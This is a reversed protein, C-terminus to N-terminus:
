ENSKECKRQAIEVAHRSAFAERVDKEFSEKDWKNRTDVDSRLVIVSTSYQSEKFKTPRLHQSGEIYGHERAQLVIHSECNPSNVLQRFSKSASTHLLSSIVHSNDNSDVGDVKDDRKHKESKKAKKKSHYSASSATAHDRCTPVVIIFTVDLKRSTAMELLEEIRQAMNNMIGSSFPPNLEYWGSKLFAANSSPHFFDGSSGFHGDLDPSPFASFYQHLSCNFPSAFCGTGANKGFWRGLCDFVGEHIAGQMGGGRWDNLQQGGSLSSYLIVTAFLATHFAHTSQIETLSGSKYTTDFLTKLKHYHTVNLKVVFPKPKHKDETGAENDANAGDNSTSAHAKRKKAVYVLSCVQDDDHWEVLVKDVNGNGGSGSGGKRRKKKGGGSESSAAADWGFRQHKGLRNELHHLETHAESTTSCLERVIELAKHRQQTFDNSEKPNSALTALIEQLLRTCSPDTELPRSPLIPDLNLHRIWSWIRGNGDNEKSTAVFKEVELLSKSEKERRYNGRERLADSENNGKRKSREDYMAARGYKKKGKSLTTKLSPDEVWEQIIAQYRDWEELKSDLLWREFTPMRLGHCSKLLFTSLDQIQLHRALEVKLNPMQHIGPAKSTSAKTTGGDAPCNTTTEKYDKPYSSGVDGIAGESTVQASALEELCDFVNEDNGMGGGDTGFADLGTSTALGDSLGTINCVNALESSSSAAPRKRKKNVQKQKKTSAIKPM